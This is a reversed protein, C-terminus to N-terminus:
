CGAPNSAEADAWVPSRVLPNNQNDKAENRRLYKQFRQM